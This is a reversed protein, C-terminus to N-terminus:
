EVFDFEMDEISVTDGEGAGAERLADIVGWRRLTRHFWNLSQEQRKYVDRKRKQREIIFWVAGNSFLVQIFIVSQNISPMYPRISISFGSLGGASPCTAKIKSFWPPDNIRM